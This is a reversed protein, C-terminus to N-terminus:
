LRLPLTLGEGSRSTKKNSRTTVPPLPRMTISGGHLASMRTRLDLPLMLFKADGGLQLQRPFNPAIEYSAYVSASLFTRAGNPESSTGGSSTTATALQARPLQSTLALKVTLLRSACNLCSQAKENGRVFAATPCLQYLSDNGQSTWPLFPGCKGSPSRV